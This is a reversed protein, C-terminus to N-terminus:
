SIGGDPRVIVERDMGEEKWVTIQLVDEPAIRYDPPTPTTQAAASEAFAVHGYAVCALGLLWVLAAWSRKVSSMSQEGCIARHVHDLRWRMGAVFNGNRASLAIADDFVLLVREALM